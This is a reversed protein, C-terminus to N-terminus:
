SQTTSAFSIALSKITLWDALEKPLNVAGGTPSTGEVDLSLSFLFSTSRSNIEFSQITVATDNQADLSGTVGVTSAVTSAQPHQAVAGSGVGLNDEIFGIIDGLTLTVPPDSPQRNLRFLFGNEVADKAQDSAVIESALPVSTGGIRITAGFSFQTTSM